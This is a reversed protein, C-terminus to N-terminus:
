NDKQSMLIKLNAKIDETEQKLSKLRLELEDNEGMVELVGQNLQDRNAQNKDKKLSAMKTRSRIRETDKTYERLPDFSNKLTRELETISTSM